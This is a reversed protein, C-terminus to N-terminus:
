CLLLFCILAFQRLIYPLFSSPFVDVMMSQDVCVCVCAHVYTFMYVCMYWVYVCFAYLLMYFVAFLDSSAAPM